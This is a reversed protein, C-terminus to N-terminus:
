LAHRRSQIDGNSFLSFARGPHPSVKVASLANGDKATWSYVFHGILFLRSRRQL